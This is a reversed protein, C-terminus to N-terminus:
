DFAVGHLTVGQLSKNSDIFCSIRERGLRRLVLGGKQGAGWVAFKIVDIM